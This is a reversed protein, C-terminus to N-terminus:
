RNKYERYIRITGTGILAVVLGLVFYGIAM